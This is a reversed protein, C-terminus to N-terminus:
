LEMPTTAKSDHCLLLSLIHKFTGCENEIAICSSNFKNHMGKIDSKQLSNELTILSDHLIYCKNCKGKSVSKSLQQTLPKKRSSKRAQYIM